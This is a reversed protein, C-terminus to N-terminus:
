KGSTVEVPPPPTILIQGATKAAAAEEPKLVKKAVLIDLGLQGIAVAKPTDAPNQCSTLAAGVFILLLHLLGISLLLHKTKM